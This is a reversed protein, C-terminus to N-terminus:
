KLSLALFQILILSYFKVPLSLLTPWLFFHRKWTFSPVQFRGPIYAQSYIVYGPPPLTGQQPYKQKCTYGFRRQRFM